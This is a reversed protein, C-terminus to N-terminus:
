LTRRRRLWSVIGSGIGGLIIAGPAPISQGPNSNTDDYGWDGTGPDYGWDGSGPDTGWDGSGPDTGWDGSGPDTGWDGSGPDTGSGSDGPDSGSGSDGPDSAWSSNGSNNQRGNDRQRLGFVDDLLWYLWDMLFFESDDSRDNATVADQSVTPGAMATSCLGICVAAIACTLFFKKMKMVGGLLAKFVHM